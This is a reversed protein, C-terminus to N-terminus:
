NALISDKLSTYAAESDNAFATSSKTAVHVIILTAGSAVITLILMAFYTNLRYTSLYMRECPLSLALLGWSRLSMLGM